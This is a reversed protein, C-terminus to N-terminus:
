CSETCLIVSCVDPYEVASVFDFKDMFQTYIRM